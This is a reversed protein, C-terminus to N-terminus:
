QQPKDHDFYPSLVIGAIAYLSDRLQEIQDDSLSLDTLHKKCEDVSIM